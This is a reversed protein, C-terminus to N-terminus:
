SQCNFSQKSNTEINDADRLKTIHGTLIDSILYSVGICIYNSNDVSCQNLTIQDSSLERQLVVIFAIM